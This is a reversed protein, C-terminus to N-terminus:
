YNDERRWYQNVVTRNPVLQWVYNQKVAFPGQKRVPRSNTKSHTHNGLKYLRPNETFMIWSTIYVPALTWFLILGLMNEHASPTSEIKEKGARNQEAWAHLWEYSLHILMLKLCHNLVQSSHVACISPWDFRLHKLLQRQVLGKRSSQHWLKDVGCFQLHTWLVHEKFIM